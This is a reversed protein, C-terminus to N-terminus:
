WLLLAGYFFITGWLVMGRTGYDYASLLSEPILITAIFDQKESKWSCKQADIRLSLSGGNGGSFSDDGTVTKKAKLKVGDFLENGWGYAFDGSLYFTGSVQVPLVKVEFFFGEAWGEPLDIDVVLTDGTALSAAVPIVLYEGLSNGLLDYAGPFSKKPNWIHLNTQTGTPSDEQDVSFEYFDSPGLDHAAELCVDEYHDRGYVMIHWVGAAPNKVEVTEICSGSTTSKKTYKSTTAWEDRRVYLQCDGKGSTTKVTLKKQGAPVIFRFRKMSGKAGLLGCEQQNHELLPPPPIELESEAVASPTMGNKTAYATVVCSGQVEFPKTYKPSTASPVKGAGGGYICEYRITAGKTACTMSVQVSEGAAFTGSSPTIVPTAVQNAGGGQTLLDIADILVGSDYNTDGVDDVRFYLKIWRNRYPTLDLLSEQWGTEGNFGTSDSTEWTAENISTSTFLDRISTSGKKEVQIKFTDNYQTGVYEPYEDSLFNWWVRLTLAESPVWFYDSSVLESTREEYADDGTTILAMRSGDKPFLSGLSTVIRADGVTYWDSFQSEFGGNPVYTAAGCRLCMGIALVMVSRVWLRWYGRNM